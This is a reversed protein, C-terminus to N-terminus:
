RKKLTKVKIKGSAKAEEDMKRFLEEKGAYGGPGLHPHHQNRKVLESNRASLALAEPSTKKAMFEV